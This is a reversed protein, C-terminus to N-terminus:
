ALSAIAEFRGRIEDRYEPLGAADPLAGPLAYAFDPAQVLDGIKAGVWQRVTQPERELEDLLEPRGAVLTIIDELDHSMLLDNMGRNQFAALKTALFLAPRPISIILGDGLDYIEHREVVAPYWQNSFGLITEDVPMLDLIYGDDTRWRCIPAGETRDNKFGLERLRAETRHYQLRTGALVVDVDRTPRIRIAAPDTLYLEVIQGGVFVLEGLLPQIRTAVAKLLHRNPSSLIDM